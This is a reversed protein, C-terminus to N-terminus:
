NDFMTGLYSHMWALAQQMGQDRRKVIGMEMTLGGPINRTSLEKITDTYWDSQAIHEPVLAWGVGRGVMSTIYYYSDIFWHIPSLTIGQRGSISNCIVLQRYHNLQNASPEPFAALPHEPSVILSQKFRAISNFELTDSLPGLFMVGIDAQRNEVWHAIDQQTGNLITLTLEPFASAVDIFFTEFAEIPVAEDIAVTLAVLQENALIGAKASLRQCQALVSKADKYLEQGAPTLVPLRQTRDFLEIGLDLELNAIATSVRSQAKGLKRAAASFSGQEVAHVFADLQDLNWHM